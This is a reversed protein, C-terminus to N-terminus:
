LALKWMSQPSVRVFTYIRDESLEPAQRLCFCGMSLVSTLPLSLQTHHRFATHLEAVRRIM